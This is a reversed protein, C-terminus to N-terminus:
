VVSNLNISAFPLKLIVKTGVGIKSEMEIDGNNRQLIDKSIILGLGAGTENNTGPTSVFGNKFILKLNEETIGIGNDQVMIEIFNNSSHTDILIRGAARTYKVANGIINKLAALVMMKDVYIEKGAETTNVIRINKNVVDKKVFALAEEIVQYADFKEPQPKEIEFQNKSWSLLNEMLSVTDDIDKNIYPLLDTFEEYTIKRGSNGQVFINKLGYIPSKLDHSIISFLKNLKMKNEQLENKQTNLEENLLLLDQTKKRLSLEYSWVQFKVMYCTFFLMIFGGTYNIFSLPFDFLFLGQEKKFYQLWYLLAFCTLSYLFAITTNRPKNLYFFPLICYIIIFLQLGYDKTYYSLIVMLPPIAVFSFKTAFAYKKFHMLLPFIFLLAIPILNLLVITLPYNVFSFFVIYVERAIAVMLSIFNLQNYVQIRRINYSSLSSHVGVSIIKQWINKRDAAM